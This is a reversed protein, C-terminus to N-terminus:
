RLLIEGVGLWLVLTALALGIAMGEAAQELMKGM